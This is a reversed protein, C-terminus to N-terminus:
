ESSRGVATLPRDDPSEAVWGTGDIAAHKAPDALIAFIVEPSAGIITTAGQAPGSRREL